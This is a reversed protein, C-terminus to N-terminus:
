IARPLNRLKKDRLNKMQLILTIIASVENHSNFSTVRTFWEPCCRALQPGGLQSISKRAEEQKSGPMAIEGSSIICKPVRFKLGLM